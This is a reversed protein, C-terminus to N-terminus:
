TTPPKFAADWVARGGQKPAETPRGLTPDPIPRRRFETATATIAADLKGPDIMGDDTLYEELNDRGAATMLRPDIGARTVATDIITQRTRTLLERLNDRETEAEQARRRYKRSERVSSDTDDATEPTDTPEDPAPEAVAADATAAHTNTDDIIEDDGPAETYNDSM